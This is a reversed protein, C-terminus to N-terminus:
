TQQQEGVGPSDSQEGEVSSLQHLGVKTAQGLGASSLSSPPTSLAGAPKHPSSSNSRWRSEPPGRAPDSPSESGLGSPPSPRSPNITRLHIWAVVLIVMSARRARRDTGRRPLPATPRITALGDGPGDVEKVAGLRNMRHMLVRPDADCSGWPFQQAVKSCQRYTFRSWSSCISVHQDV